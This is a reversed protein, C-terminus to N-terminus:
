VKQRREALINQFEFKQNEADYNALFVGGFASYDHNDWIRFRAEMLSFFDNVIILICPDISGFKRRVNTKDILTASISDRIENENFEANAIAKEVRPDSSDSLPKRKATVLRPAMMGKLMRTVEIDYTDGDISARWDPFSTKGNPEHRADRVEFGANEVTEVFADWVRSEYQEDPIDDFTKHYYPMLGAPIKPRFQRLETNDIFIGLGPVGYDLWTYVPISIQDGNPKTSLHGRYDAGDYIAANTSALMNATLSVAGDQMQVDHVIWVECKSPDWESLSELELTTNVWQALDNRTKFAKEGMTESKFQKALLSTTESLTYEAKIHEYLNNERTKFFMGSVSYVADEYEEDDPDVIQPKVFPPVMRSRTIRKVIETSVPLDIPM